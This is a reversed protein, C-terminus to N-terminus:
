PLYRLHVWQREGCPDSKRKVSKIEVVGLQVARDVAKGVGWWYDDVWVITEPTAFNRCDMIDQFCGEESHDGDIYIFDVKEDPHECVYQPITLHSDGQIFLFRDKYKRQMFAVGAPTYLYKGLDFSVIKAHPCEQLFLECSHGANFGVEVMKQIKNKINSLDSRM